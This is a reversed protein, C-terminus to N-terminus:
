RTGGCPHYAFAYLNAIYANSSIRPIYAILSLLMKYAVACTNKIWCQFHENWIFLDATRYLSVAATRAGIATMFFVIIIVFLMVLMVLLLLLLLLVVVMASM